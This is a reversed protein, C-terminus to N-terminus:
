PPPPPDHLRCRLKQPAASFRVRPGRRIRGPDDGSSGFAWPADTLLRLATRFTKPSNMPFWGSTQFGLARLIVSGAIVLSGWKVIGQLFLATTEDVMVSDLMHQQAAFALYNSSVAHWSEASQTFRHFIHRSFVYVCFLGLLPPAVEQFTQNQGVVVLPHLVKWEDMSAAVTTNAALLTAILPILITLAPLM